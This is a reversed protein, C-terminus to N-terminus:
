NKSCSLSKVVLYMISLSSLNVVFLSVTNMDVASQILMFGGAHWIGNLYASGTFSSFFAISLSIVCYAWFWEIIRKNRVEKAFFLYYLLFFMACYLVTVMLVSLGVVMTIMTVSPSATQWSGSPLSLLVPLGSMTTSVLFLIAIGLIAMIKKIIGTKM